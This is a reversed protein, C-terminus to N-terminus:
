CGSSDRCFALSPPWCLVSSRDPGLSQRSTTVSLAMIKAAIFASYYRYAIALVCLAGIMLPLASM